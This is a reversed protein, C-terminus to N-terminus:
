WCIGEVNGTSMHESIRVLDIFIKNSYLNVTEIDCAKKRNFVVLEAWNLVEEESKLMLKEIYPLHQELYEKNSGILLAANVYDDHLRIEYGKGNFYEIIKIIPSYRLDDTGQKFAIGLIGIKRCNYKEILKITHKIHSENSLEIADLVPASIYKDHAVTKLAKLDKPLCSGGYAFGPKFYYPSINLQKDLCFLKMVEHSDIGLQKCINGIENGFTVKLAHFSNNVYKIIEAAAVTSRIFEGNVKSYILGAASAAKDSDTGILSFPPNYYDEVASGERLFEPNSVVGFDHNCQKGSANEIIESVKKNTGPLVTSRIMITHFGDKNKLATGIQRAAEYVYSLNLHGAESSPTGVCIISIESQEVAEAYDMTAKIMGQAHQEVIIREIDKEIITPKGANILDVKSRNVDIGIVRFGNQALCGLSVCGVYGLGFVIIDMNEDM